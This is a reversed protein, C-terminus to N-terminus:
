LFVSDNPWLKTHKGDPKAYGIDGSAVVIDFHEELEEDSFRKHLSNSGINSLM